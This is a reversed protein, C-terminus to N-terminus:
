KKRLWARFKQLIFKNQGNLIEIEKTTGESDIIIKTKPRIEILKTLTGIGILSIYIFIFFIVMHTLYNSSWIRLTGTWWDLAVFFLALPITARFFTRAIFYKGIRSSPHFDQNDEGLISCSIASLFFIVSLAIQMNGLLSIIWAIFRHYTIPPFCCELGSRNIEGEYEDEIYLLEIQDGDQLGLTTLKVEKSVSSHARVQDINATEITISSSRLGEIINPLLTIKLNDINESTNNAVVINIYSEDSVFKPISFSISIGLYKEAAKEAAFYFPKTTYTQAPTLFPFYAFYYYFAFIPFVFLLAIIGYRDLKLYFFDFINKM